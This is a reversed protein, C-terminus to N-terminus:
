ITLKNNRWVDVGLGIKPQQRQLIVRSRSRVKIAVKLRDDLEKDLSINLLLEEGITQVTKTYAIGFKTRGFLNAALLASTKDFETLPSVIALDLKKAFSKLFDYPGGKAMFDFKNEWILDAWLKKFMKEPIKEPVISDLLNLPIYDLPYVYPVNGSPSSYTIYGFLSGDETKDAKFLIKLTKIQQPSLNFAQPRESPKLEEKVFTEVLINQLTKKTRNILVLTLIITHYHNELFAEVYIPDTYGSLQYISTKAAPEKDEILDELPLPQRDNEELEYDAATQTGKLQRFSIIEETGTRYKPEEEKRLPSEDAKKEKALKKGVESTMYEGCSLFLDQEATNHESLVKIASLLRAKNDADLENTKSSIKIISCITLLGYVAWNNYVKIDERLRLVLKALAVGLVAALFSEEVALLLNRLNSAEPEAKKVEEAKKPAVESEEIIQTAYTGDPLIVTKTRKKTKAVPEEKKQEEKPVNGKVAPVIPLPGIIEKFTELARMIIEKNKAHEGIIWIISTLVSPDKVEPLYTLLKETIKGEMEPVVVLAKRALQAVEYAVNDPLIETPGPLKGEFEKTQIAEMTIYEEILPVVLSTFVQRPFTESLRGAATVWLNAFQASNKDKRLNRRIHEIIGEVNRENTLALVIELAKKRIELSSSSFTSLLDLLHEELDQKRRGKILEEFKGLITIIVNNEHQATLLKMYCQVAARIASPAKSLAILTHACELLVASSKSQTFTHVIGLYKAKDSPDALCSKRVLEVILLQMLDGIESLPDDSKLISSLYEFAKEQSCHFLLLFANRKTSLDTENQLMAELKDPLDGLMDLGFALYVNMLCAIANRRVYYHRHSLNEMIAQLLPELISRYMLRSVLRLTKARIYENPHLLDKRLTNCALILEDRVSGDPKLKDVTEWYLLMLKKIEHDDSPVLFQLVPMMLRPFTDDQIILKILQQLASVKEELKGKMFIQQIEAATPASEIDNAVIFPCFQERETTGKISAM